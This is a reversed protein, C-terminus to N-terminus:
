GIYEATFAAMLDYIESLEDLPALFVIRLHVLTLTMLDSQTYIAPANNQTLPRFVPAFTQPSLLFAVLLAFAVLRLVLGIRVSTTTCIPTSVM